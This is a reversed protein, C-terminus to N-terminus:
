YKGSWPLITQITLAIQRKATQLVKLRSHHWCSHHTLVYQYRQHKYLSPLQWQLKSGKVVEDLGERYQAPVTVQAYTRRIIQHLVKILLHKAGRERETNFIKRRKEFCVETPFHKTAISTWPEGLSITRLRLLSIDTQVTIWKRVTRWVLQSINTDVEQWHSALVVRNVSYPGRDLPACLRITQFLSSDQETRPKPAARHPNTNLPKVYQVRILKRDTWSWCSSNFRDEDATESFMFGSWFGRPADEYGNIM